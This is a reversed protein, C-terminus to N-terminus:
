PGTSYGTNGVYGIVQGTTVKQGATVAISSQHAYLTSLGNAHDILTWMGWSYCGPVADTNGTARVVGTLPAMIATGRPAGMDIGPHYARGGYVSSNRAAFETGGFLQTIIVNALPWEFVATGPAPITNPDLIFQLKSEFDRMEREIQDRAEEKSALLQQYNREENKTVALLEAQENRNNELVQNQSSYQNKLSSLRNRKSENEERKEVLISRFTDLESVKGAMTDRVNERAEFTSWFESLKDHRLLIEILSDEEARYEARIISGIAAETGEIDKETKSIELILKNIELDTSTILNETKSIESNVKKRELELQNIASQLTKKEAGVKKLEAEFQAIEAEIEALRNSRTDIENRLKDIESEASVESPTILIFQSCAFLVLFVILLNKCKNLTLASTKTKFFNKILDPM